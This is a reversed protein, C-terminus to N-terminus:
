SSEVRRAKVNCFIMCYHLHTRNRWMRVVMSIGSVGGTIDGGRRRIDGVQVEEGM